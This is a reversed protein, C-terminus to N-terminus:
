LCHSNSMLKYFVFKEQRIGALTSVIEKLDTTQRRGFVLARPLQRTQRYYPSLYCTFNSAYYNLQTHKEAAM